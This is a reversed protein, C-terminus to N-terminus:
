SLAMLFGLIIWLRDGTMITALVLAIVAAVKFGTELWARRCFLSANLFWGGDLPVFPLLNFANLIVTLVAFKELWPYDSFLAVFSLALGMVLGPAPGELSVLAKKWGAVNFNQGSVAAGFLPIFFMRLNRYGFVRM